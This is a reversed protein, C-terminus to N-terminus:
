GEILELNARPLTLKEGGQLEVEAVRVKAGTPIVVPQVPLDTVTGLEGFHPARILRVPVGPALELEAPEESKKEWDGDLDTVIIEPRIVGARIQTAGSVSARQGARDQLLAFTKDAIPLPGFGETM